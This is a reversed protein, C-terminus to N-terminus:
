KFAIDNGENPWRARVKIEQEYVFFREAPQFPAAVGFTYKGDNDRDRFGEIWYTGPLIKEFIYPGPADVIIEYTQGKDEKPKAAMFIRGQGLSGEDTITGAISSFTDANVTKFTITLTSDAVPNNDRDFTSDLRISVLYYASGQLDGEAAFEVSAPTPWTFVGSVENDLSDLLTFSGELSAKSMPERFHLVVKSDPLVALASDEPVTSVLQPSLSDPLASGVLQVSDFNPDVSNLSRDTVNSVKLLYEEQAQQTQTILIVEKPDVANLYASEVSLLQGDSGTIQYNAPVGISDASLDEDFTLRVLKNNDVAVSILAPGLTDQMSLKFRLDSVALSDSGLEVDGPPIGIADLGVEFFRNNDKDWIAFVRYSGQSLNSFQFQGQGDTQTVYDGSRETPDPDESPDLIYAWILVGQKKEDSFVVGGIKGDSLEAGTSFALTYSQALAINHEDKLDTGLTIVYTRNVRLSDLFEVQLKRGKWKLEVRDGPDPTMFIAKELSKRDMSESFAFEIKQDL